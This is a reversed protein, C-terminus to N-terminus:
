TPVAGTMLRWLGVPSHDRECLLCLVQGDESAIFVVSGPHEAAYTAAARHRTGRSGFDIEQVGGGTDAHSAEVVRIAQRVPLIVGFAVLALARNLLVAGDIATLRGLEEIVREAETLFANGLLAGFAFQETRRSRGSQNARDNGHDGKHSVRWALRLLAGLSFNQAMHYPASEPVRPREDPSIILIGGHGHAVIERVLSGVADIYRSIIEADIGGSRAITELARHVPGAAFLADDGVTVVVGREYEIALERGGRISLCGPRSAIIRIFPDAGIHIGERALGTIALAGDELVGVATYIRHDGAAVALKVFERSAFPRPSVFRLIKWQYLPPMDVATDDSMVYDAPSRGLFAVSIPHHEGEYTELGAFFVTTFLQVLERDSVELLCVDSPAARERVLRVLAPPFLYPEAPQTSTESSM